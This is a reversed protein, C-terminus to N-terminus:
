VENNVDDKGNDKGDDKGDDKVGNGDGKEMNGDTGFPAAM